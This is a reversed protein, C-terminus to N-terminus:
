LKGYARKDAASNWESFTRFYHAQLADLGGVMAALSCLPQYIARM